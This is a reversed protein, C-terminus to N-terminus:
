DIGGLVASMGKGESGKAGGDEGLGLGMGGLCVM